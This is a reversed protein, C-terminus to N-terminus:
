SGAEEAEWFEDVYVQIEEESVVGLSGLTVRRGDEWTAEAYVRKGDQYIAFQRYTAIKVVAM